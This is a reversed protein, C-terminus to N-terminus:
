ASYLKSYVNAFVESDKVIHDLMRSLEFKSIEDISNHSTGLTQNIIQVKRIDDFELGLDKALKNLKMHLMNLQKETPAQFSGRGATAGYRAKTVVQQAEQIVTDWADVPPEEVVEGEVIDEPAEVPQQPAEVPTERSVPVEVTWNGTPELEEATYQVGALVEPCADRACETIARAKLMADPFKQWSPNNTLGASAAREMTWTTTFTFDPDDSRVIQCVAKTSDATVRLRHGAMRVLSGILSASATPKGKIVNIGQIAAMPALGLAKGYEIAVLVNAPQNRYADPLLTSAALLKSYEVPNVPQLETM